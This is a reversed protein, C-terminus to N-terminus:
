SAYRRKGDMWTESIRIKSIANKTTVPNEELITLDAFKGPAISGTRDDAHCQWAADLTVARLAAEVPIREDPYFVDGGENMVRTVANEVYRLPEIPTVNWDSHLSIRLGAAMASACPDYFRAREPGFIRDQFAKGWWHVHGILFSPSLGLEKMRVMQEPHLMSCHEIRHRLDNAPKDRLAAAYADITTDIAADGNAHVGVQWGGDNARRITETMQELSYNLAGRKDSNLYNERQYGTQAQNSGDAWAKIGTLRFRDNGQNPKLGMKDWQDFLTSILMGQYRVPADDAVVAELLALDNPGALLGIGCDHFSTCGVSAALDFLRRVRTQFEAASPQPMRKIFLAQAAMEELRGTLNGNADRNFRAGPPDPTDRTVGALKLAASNVYAIHGNSEQIFVPNAPALEDLEALTPAKAGRTISPDFQQAQIWDGPKAQSIGARLKAVAAAFDPTIIPSLNIWGDFAVFVFHAHPEVFGPLMTRGKLDVAQTKPGTLGDIDQKRGAAVIRGGRIAVAEAQPASADMTLIPGGYFIVDAPGAAGQDAAALAPGAASAAFASTAAVSMYKLFDRRSAANRIIALQGPNCAICM